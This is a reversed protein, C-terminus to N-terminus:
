KVSKWTRGIRVFRVASRTVGFREALEQNSADSQRIIRVAKSTLKSFSCDDGVHYRGKAAAERNNDLHTGIRLHEPNCCPPNDCNHLVLKGEPIPGFVVSWMARHTLLNRGLSEIKGYGMLRQRTKQWEWCGSKTVKCDAKIREVTLPKPIFRGTKPDIVSSM